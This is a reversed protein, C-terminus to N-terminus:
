WLFPLPCDGSEAGFYDSPIYYAKELAPPQNRKNRGKLVGEPPPNPFGGGALETSFPLSLLLEAKKTGCEL